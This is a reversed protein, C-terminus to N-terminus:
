LDIVVPLNIPDYHENCVTANICMTEKGNSHQLKYQGYGEHIHGCLAFKPSISKITELLVSCGIHKPGDHYDIIHDLIGYPPGHSILVDTDKPVRDWIKHAENRNYMFAWNLFEPTYPSGYFKIGDITISENILLKIGFSHFMIQAKGVNAEIWRDHNGATALKIKHPQKGFWKLFSEVDNLSGSNSFDGCHILLDGDPLNISDHLRHTDSIIVAKL